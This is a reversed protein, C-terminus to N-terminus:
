PWLEGNIADKATGNFRVASEDEDGDCRVKRVIQLPPLNRYLCGDFM